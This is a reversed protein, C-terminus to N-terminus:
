AQKWELDQLALIDTTEKGKTEVNDGINIVIRDSKAQILDKQGIISIEKLVTIDTQLVFNITTDNKLTFKKRTESYGLINVLLECDGTKSAKIHYNGLSDSLASQHYISDFLLQITAFEVPDGNTNKLNGHISIQSFVVNICSVLLLLFLMVFQKIRM